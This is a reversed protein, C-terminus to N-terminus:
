EGEEEAFPFPVQRWLHNLIDQGSFFDAVGVKLDDEIFDVASTLHKDEQEILELPDDPGVIVVFRNGAVKQRGQPREHIARRLGQHQDNSGASFQM